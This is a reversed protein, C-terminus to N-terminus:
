WERGYAKSQESYFSPRDTNWETGHRRRKFVAEVGEGTIYLGKGTVTCGNLDMCFSVNKTGGDIKWESGTESINKLIKLTIELDADAADVADKMAAIAKTLTAYRKTNGGVTVEAVGEEVTFVAKKSTATYEGCTAVCYYQYTGALLGTPIRYTASTADQGNTKSQNNDWKNNKDAYWQYSISGSGSEAKVTLKPAEAATYNEMVTEAGSSITPHTTFYLPSKVATVKRGEETWRATLDAYTGDDYKLTYGVKLLDQLTKKPNNVWIANGSAQAPTFTGEAIQSNDPLRLRGNFTGGEINVALKKYENDM